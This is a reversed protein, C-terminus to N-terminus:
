KANKDAQFLGFINSDPDKYYATWGVGPIVQKALAAVGGAAMVAAGTKDLNEVDITGVYAIVPTPANADPNAGMRKILGGNIGPTGDEGTTVLWYFDPPGYPQFKWNFLGSYFAIARKPDAAHIEFHVVRNM